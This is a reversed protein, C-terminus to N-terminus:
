SVSSSDSPAGCPVVAMPMAIRLSRAARLWPPKAMLSGRVSAMGELPLSFFLYVREERCRAHRQNLDRARAAIARRHLADGADVYHQQRRAIAAAIAEPSTCRPTVPSSKSRSDASSEFAAHFQQFRKAEAEGIDHHGHRAGPDIYRGHRVEVIDARCKRRAMAAAQAHRRFVRLQRAAEEGM